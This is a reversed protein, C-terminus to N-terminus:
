RIPDATIFSNDEFVAGCNSLSMQVGVDRKKAEGITEGHLLLVEWGVVGFITRSRKASCCDGSKDFDVFYPKEDVYGPVGHSGYRARSIRIKAQKIADAESQLVHDGPACSNIRYAFAVVDVLFLLLLLSVLLLFVNRPRFMKRM